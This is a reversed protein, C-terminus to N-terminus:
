GGIRSAGFQDRAEGAGGADSDSGRRFWSATGIGAEGVGPKLSLAVAENAGAEGYWGRSVSVDATPLARNRRMSQVEVRAPAPLVLKDGYIINQVTGFNGGVNISYYRKVNEERVVRLMPIDVVSRERIWRYEPGGCVVVNNRAWM